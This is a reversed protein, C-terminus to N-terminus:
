FYRFRNFVNLIEGGLSAIPRVYNALWLPGLRRLMDVKAMARHYALEMPTMGTRRAHIIIEIINNRTIDSITKRDAEFGRELISLASGIAGGATSIIDPIVRIGNSELQGAMRLSVPYNAIPAVIKCNPKERISLVNAGPVHIDAEIQFIRNPPQLISGFNKEAYQRLCNEGHKSKLDILHGVDLGGRDFLTFYKNAIAMIKYGEKNLIYAAATGMNGFGQLGITECSDMEYMEITATISSLLSQAVALGTLSMIESQRHLTFSPYVGIRQYLKTLDDEGFGMDSGPIYKRKVLKIDLNEALKKILSPRDITSPNAQIGIKAGGIPIGALASKLTMLRALLITEAETVEPQIRIGGWCMGFILFDIAFWGRIGGLDLDTTEGQAVLM